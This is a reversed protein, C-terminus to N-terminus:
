LSGKLKSLTMKILINFGNLYHQGKLKSYDTYITRVPVECIKLKNEKAMGIMESCFEYGPNSIRCKKLGVKSFARFGSQSDTVWIRYYIYTIVSFIKNGFRKIFPMAHNLDKELLRSGIVLDYGNLVKSILKKIEAPDHQGDADMTVALDFKKRKAYELGTMTAGGAGLNIRHHLVVAGANKSKLITNDSSNDDVVIVTSEMAEFFTKPIKKIVKGIVRAENYAPLIIALKKKNESIRGVDRAM